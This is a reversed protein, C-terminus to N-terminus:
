RGRAREAARPLLEDFFQKMGDGDFEVCEGQDLQRRSEALQDLIAQRRRLLDVAAELAAARSSFWGRSVADILFSETSPSLNDLMRLVEKQVM